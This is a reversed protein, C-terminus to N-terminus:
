FRGNFNRVIMDAVSIVKERIEQPCFFFSL